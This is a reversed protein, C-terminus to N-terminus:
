SSTAGETLATLIGYNNRTSEDVFEQPKATTIQNLSIELIQGTLNHDDVIMEAAKTVSVVPTLDIGELQGVGPAINTELATTL